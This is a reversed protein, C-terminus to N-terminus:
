GGGGALEDELEAIRDRMGQRIQEDSVARKERHHRSRCADNCFRQRRGGTLAAGCAACQRGRPVTQVTDGGDAAAREIDAM